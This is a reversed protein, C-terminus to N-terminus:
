SAHYNCQKRVIGCACQGHQVAGFFRMAAKHDEEPTPTSSPVVKTSSQWHPDALEFEQVSKQYQRTGQPGTASEDWTIWVWGSPTVSSVKGTIGKAPWRIPMGPKCDKFLM